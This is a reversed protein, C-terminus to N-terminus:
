RLLITLLTVSVAVIWGDFVYRLWRPAYRLEMFQFAVVWVKIFAVIVVGATALAMGQSGVQGTQGLWWGVGTAVVLTLWAITNANSRTSPLERDM